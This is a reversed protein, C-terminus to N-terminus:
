FSEFIINDSDKLKRRFCEWLIKGSLAGMRSVWNGLIMARKLCTTKHNGMGELLRM